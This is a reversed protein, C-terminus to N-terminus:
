WQLGMRGYARRRRAERLCEITVKGHGEGALYGELWGVQVDLPELELSVEAGTLCSTWAATDFFEEAGAPALEVFWQGRDALVQVTGQPVHAQLLQNSASDFSRARLPTGRESLWEALDLVAQPAASLDAMM